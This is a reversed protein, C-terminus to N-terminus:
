AAGGLTGTVVSVILPVVGLLVFAPLVCVGLPLMLRVGLAAARAAGDARATRRRRAAEARLLEAVPAGARGAMAIVGEVDTEDSARAGIPALAERVIARAREISAGGSMAMAVLELGLGREAESSTARAVLARSWRRGAWLLGGGLVVCALGVPNGFLVAVTDFGFAAGFVVAILPLALVLRASSIPGALASGVERRLQAEDRLAGALERLSSALPAGSEAAVQWAAGLLVWRESTRPAAARAEAIAGPVSRGDAAAAAVAHLVAEDGGGDRDAGAFGEGSVPGVGVHTWAVSAPVGASLLVALREAIAAVADLEAAPDARRHRWSALRARLSTTATV